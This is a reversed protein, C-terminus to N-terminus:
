LFQLTIPEAGSTEADRRARHTMVPRTTARQRSRSPTLAGSDIYIISPIREPNLPVAPDPISANNKNERNDSIIFDYSTSSSHGCKTDNLRVYPPIHTVGVHVLIQHRARRQRKYVDSAASSYLPTSRPPRRIM